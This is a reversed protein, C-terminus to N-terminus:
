RRSLSDYSRFASVEQEVRAADVHQSVQAVTAQLQTISRSLTHSKVQAGAFCELWEGCCNQMMNYVEALQEDGRTWDRSILNLYTSLETTAELGEKVDRLAANNALSSRFVIREIVKNSQLLDSRFSPDALMAGFTDGHELPLRLFDNRQDLDRIALDLDAHTDDLFDDMDDIHAQLISVVEQTSKASQQHLLHVGFAIQSVLKWLSHHRAGSPRPCCLSRPDTTASPADNLLLNRRTAADTREKPKASAPDTFDMISEEFANQMRPIPHIPLIHDM